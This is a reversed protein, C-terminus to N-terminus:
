HKPLKWMTPRERLPLSLIAKLGEINLNKGSNIPKSNELYSDKTTDQNPNYIISSNIYVQLPPLKKIISDPKVRGQHGISDQLEPPPPPDFIRIDFSRQNIKSDIFAQVAETNNILKNESRCGLILIM